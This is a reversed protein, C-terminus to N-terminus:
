LEHDGELVKTGRSKDFHEKLKNWQDEQERIGEPSRLYVNYDLREQSLPLNVRNMTCQCHPENFQPGLCACVKLNSFDIDPYKIPDIGDPVSSISNNM